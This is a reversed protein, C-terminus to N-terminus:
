MSVEWAFGTAFSPVTNFVIVVSCGALQHVTNSPKNIGDILNSGGVQTQTQTSTYVGQGCRLGDEPRSCTHVTM